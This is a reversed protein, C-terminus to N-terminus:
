LSAEPASIGSADDTAIVQVGTVGVLVVPIRHFLNGRFDSRDSDGGTTTTTPGDDGTAEILYKITVTQTPTFGAGEV